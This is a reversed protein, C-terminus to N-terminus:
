TQRCGVSSTPGGARRGVGCATTRSGTSSFGGRRDSFVTMTLTRTGGDPLWVDWRRWLNGRKSRKLGDRFARRAADKRENEARAKDQMAQRFIEGVATRPVPRESAPM